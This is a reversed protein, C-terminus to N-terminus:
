GESGYIPIAAGTIEGGVEGALMVVLDAVHTTKVWKDFKAKPMAARNAATDM